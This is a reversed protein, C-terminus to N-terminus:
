TANWHMTRGDQGTTGVLNNSSDRHAVVTPYQPDGGVRHRENRDPQRGRRNATSDYLEVGAYDNGSIVNAEDANEPGFVPNVGIWNISSLTRLFVGDGGNGLGATAPRTRASSIAPSSMAAPGAATSTSAMTASPSGSIVNRQGADDASQGSTGILNDSAGNDIM